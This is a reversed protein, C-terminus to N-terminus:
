SNSGIIMLLICIIIFIIFWTTCGDDGKNNSSSSYNKNADGHKNPAGPWPDKNRHAM